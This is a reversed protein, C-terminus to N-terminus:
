VVASDSPTPAREIVDSLKELKLADKWYGNLIQSATSIHMGARQAVTGMRLGKLKMKAQLKRLKLPPLKM